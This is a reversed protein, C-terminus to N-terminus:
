ASVPVDALDFYAEGWGVGRTPVEALTLVNWGTALVSKEALPHVFAALVTYTANPDLGWKRPDVKLGTLMKVNVRVRDGPKFKM